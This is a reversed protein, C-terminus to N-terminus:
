RGPRASAPTASTCTSTGSTSSLCLRRSRHRRAQRRDARPADAALEAAQEDTEVTAIVTHGRAALAVAAGRGFGSGAGTILVTKSMAAGRTTRDPTIHVDLVAQRGADVQEIARRLAGAARGPRHRDRGLGPVVRRRAPLRPEAVAVTLPVVDAKAAYGTPYLGTVSQQVAGYGANNLIVTLVAIGHAEGVHHAAVPNAFLYSGDGM